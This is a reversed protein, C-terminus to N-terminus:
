SKKKKKIKPCADRYMKWKGELNKTEGGAILLSIFDKKHAASFANIAITVNGFRM